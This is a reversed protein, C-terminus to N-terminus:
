STALHLRSMRASLGVDLTTSTVLEGSGVWDGIGSAVGSEGDGCAEGRNEGLTRGLGSALAIIM